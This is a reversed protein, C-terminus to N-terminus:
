NKFTKQECKMNDNVQTRHKTSPEDTLDTKIFLKEMRVLINIPEKGISILYKDVALAAQKETEFLNCGVGKIHIRWKVKDSTNTTIGLVHKYKSKVSKIAGSVM